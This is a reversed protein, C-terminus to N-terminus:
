RVNDVPLRAERLAARRMKGADDRLPEDVFEITRPQKYRVLRDSLFASLDAQTVAGPDCEIIAHIVNGKDEDPLGIVACSRVAPHENIAAEVEAPYVNAGGTLIMDQQRDGLYLYGDADMYGMDGLSEWGGERTRATAGVYRYTATPRGSRMWVEGFEGPALEEGAPGFIRMEGSIPRGVSGRHELWEVGSIVTASQGETGAYLELIREPGLWEIWTEKLWPPCPEALHWVVKLSSLDYRNRTEEPLRWIRKMMTPVLYVVEGRHEEIAALTAEADFRPLVVVHGGALWAGCSWVLPGNHYLPGPMVLCSGAPFLLPPSEPDTLAADGSVILKPRGTSGGSTPAKWAPSVADPLPSDDASVPEYGLPYCARGPAAAPDVGFIAKPDALDIIAELERGPLRASVPQPTAGLKWAAAAAVFWDVSNPLAITVMDGVTVGAGALDRALRNARSELVARTLQDDGCTIAPADPAQLAMDTLRRAYSIPAM